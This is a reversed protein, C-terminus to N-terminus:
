DAAREDLSVYLEGTMGLLATVLSRKFFLVNCCVFM